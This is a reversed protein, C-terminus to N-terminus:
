AVVLHLSQVVYFARTGGHEALLFQLLARIGPIHSIERLMLLKGTHERSPTYRDNEAKSVNQPHLQILEGVQEQTLDLATRVQTVLCISLEEATNFADQQAIHSPANM